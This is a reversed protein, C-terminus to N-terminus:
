GRVKMGEIIKTTTLGDEAELRAIQNELWLLTKKPTSLDSEVLECIIYDETDYSNSRAKTTIIYEGSDIQALKSEIRLKRGKAWYNKQIQFAIRSSSPDKYIRGHDSILVSNGSKNYVKFSKRLTVVDYVNCLRNWNPWVEKFEPIDLNM